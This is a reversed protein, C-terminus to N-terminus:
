EKAQKLADDVAELFGRSSFSAGSVADIDTVGYELVLNLLEEMAAEGPYISDSHSKIVIDEIGAPGTQVQVYVPGRYGQGSGEYIGPTYPNKHIFQSSSCATLILVSLFLLFSIKM